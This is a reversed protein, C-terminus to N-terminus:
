KNKQLYELFDELTDIEKEEKFVVNSMDISFGTLTGDKIMQWTADDNVKASLMWTGNPLDEFEKPVLGREKNLIYSEFFCVGNFSFQHEINGQTQRNHQFFNIAVQKITDETWTIYFKHGGQDRYIPQGPILAPGTVIRSEENIKLQIKVDDQKSLRIFGEEIAPRTVFSVSNFVSLEDDFEIEYIPLNNYYKM